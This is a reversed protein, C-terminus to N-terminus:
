SYSLETWLGLAAQSQAMSKQGELIDFLGAAEQAIQVREVAKIPTCETGRLLDGETACIVKEAKM